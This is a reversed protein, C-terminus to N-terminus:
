FYQIENKNSRIKEGKKFDEVRDLVISLFYEKELEDVIEDFVEFMEAPVERRIKWIEEFNREAILKRLNRINFYVMMKSFKM